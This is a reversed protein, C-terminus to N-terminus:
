SVSISRLYEYYGTIKTVNLVQNTSGGTNEQGDGIGDQGSNPSLMDNQLIEMIYIVKFLVM